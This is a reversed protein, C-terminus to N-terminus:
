GPAGYALVALELESGRNVSELLRMGGREKRFFGADHAGNDRSRGVQLIGGDVLSGCIAAIAGSIKEDPFWSNRNLVNMCRVYTFRDVIKTQFVDYDISKLKGASLYAITRPDFLCIEKLEVDIPPIINLIRFLWRAISYRAQLAGDALLSFVYGYLLRQDQDFVRVVRKGTYYYRTYKDSIFYEVKLSSFVTDYFDCATVGSSVGVDHVINMAQTRAYKSAVEDLDKFRGPATTKGHREQTTMNSVIANRLACDSVSDIGSIDFVFLKSLWKSSYVIRILNQSKTAIKLM